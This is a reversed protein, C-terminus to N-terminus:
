GGKPMEQLYAIAIRDIHMRGVLPTRGEPTILYCDDFIRLDEDYEVLVGVFEGEGGTM